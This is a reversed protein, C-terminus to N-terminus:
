REYTCACPTFCNSGDTTLWDTQRWFISNLWEFLTVMHYAFKTHPTQSSFTLRDQHRYATFYVSRGPSYTDKLVRTRLLVDCRAEFWARGKRAFFLKRTYPPLSGPLNQDRAPRPQVHNGILPWSQGCVYAQCYDIASALESKGCTGGYMPPSRLQLHKFSVAM